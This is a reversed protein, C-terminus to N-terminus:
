GIKLFKKKRNSKAFAIEGSTIAILESSFSSGALWGAGVKCGVGVGPGEVEVAFECSMARM